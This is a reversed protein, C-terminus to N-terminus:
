IKGHAHLIAMLMRDRYAAVETATNGTEPPRNRLEEDIGEPAIKLAYEEPVHDIDSQLVRKFSRNIGHSMHPGALYNRIGGAGGNLEGNMNPGVIAYRLGLGYVSTKDVDEVSCVGDMVLQVAEKLYAMQLRNGIFGPSEKRLRVPEKGVLQYFDYATRAAADGNELCFIEVLPMLHPPNFPHGIICRESHATRAAMEALPLGSTSSAIIATRNFEDIGALLDQKVTMDEPTSEQIFQADKVADELTGCLAVHSIAVDAEADALYGGDTFAKLNGRVKSMAGALSEPFADYINVDYGYRAFHTAWSSGILGGGICAVTKINAAEMKNTNDEEFSRAVNSM